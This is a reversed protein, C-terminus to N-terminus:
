NLFIVYGAEIFADSKYHKVSMEIMLNRLTLASSGCKLFSQTQMM